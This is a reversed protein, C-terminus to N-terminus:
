QEHQSVSNISSHQLFFISSRNSFYAWYTPNKEWVFVAGNQAALGGKYTLRRVLAPGCDPPPRRGAPLEAMRHWALFYM